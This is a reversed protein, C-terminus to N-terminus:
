TYIMGKLYTVAKGGIKVRDSENKCYLLGGRKSVQKATLEDKGLITSWYPTLLTHASGTVPDEDVGVAPAFFRSIFDCTTGRATVIIGRYDLKALLRFDPNVGMIEEERDFVAMLDEGGSYCQRPKCGLAGELSYPIDIPQPIASPFDMVLLDDNKNVHLIGSRTEFRISSQTTIFYNFLVHATALTAHGCLNVETAPTFWRLGYGNDAPIFFATESLNNEMAIQQLLRDSLWRDLPVVAAPNGEFQRSTFADIQFIQLQM